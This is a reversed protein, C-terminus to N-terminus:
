VVRVIRVIALGSYEVCKASQIASDYVRIRLIQVYCPLRHLRVIHSIQQYVRKRLEFSLGLCSLSLCPVSKVLGTKPVKVPIPQPLLSQRYRRRWGQFVSYEGILVRVNQHPDEDRNRQQHCEHQSHRTAYYKFFDFFFLIIVIVILIM